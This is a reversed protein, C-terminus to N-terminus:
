ISRTMRIMVAKTKTKGPRHRSFSDRKSISGRADWYNIIRQSIITTLTSDQPKRNGCLGLHHHHNNNQPLLLLLRSYLLILSLSGMLLLLRKNSCYLLYENRAVFFFENRTTACCLLAVSDLCQVKGDKVLLMCLGIDGVSFTLRSEM